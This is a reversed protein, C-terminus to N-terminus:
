LKSKGMNEIGRFYVGELANWPQEQISENQWREM